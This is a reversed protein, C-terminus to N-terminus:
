EIFGCIIQIDGCQARKFITKKVETAARYNYSMVAPEQVADGSMYQCKFAVAFDSPEFAVVFGIVFLSAFEQAVFGVLGASHLEAWNM